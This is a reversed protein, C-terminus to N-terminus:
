QGILREVLLCWQHHCCHIIYVCVFCIHIRQVQGKNPWSVSTNDRSSCELKCGVFACLDNVALHWIFSIFNFFFNFNLSVISHFIIIFKCYNCNVIPIKHYTSTHVYTHSLYPAGCIQKRRGEKDNVRYVQRYLLIYAYTHIYIYIYLLLLLWLMFMVNLWENVKINTKILRWHQQQANALVM